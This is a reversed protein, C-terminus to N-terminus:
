IHKISDLVTRCGKEVKDRTDPTSQCNVLYEVKHDFLVALRSEGQPPQAIPIVYEYGPLGGYEVEHGSVKKGALSGIVKDVEGKFNALNAATIDFKPNLDFRQLIILNDQDVQVAAEDVPRAGANRSVSLDHGITFGGPIKFTIDFGTEEYRGSGSSGGCAAAALLLLASASM